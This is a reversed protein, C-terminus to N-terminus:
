LEVQLTSDLDNALPCLWNKERNSEYLSSLYTGFFTSIFSALGYVAPFCKLMVARLICPFSSLPAFFDQTPNDWNRGWAPASNSAEGVPLDVKDQISLYRYDIRIFLLNNQFGGSEM